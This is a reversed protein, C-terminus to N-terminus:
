KYVQYLLVSPILTGSFNQVVAINNSHNSIYLVIGGDFWHTNYHKQNEHPTFVKREEISFPIFSAVKINQIDVGIKVCVM